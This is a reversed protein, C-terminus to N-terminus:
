CRMCRVNGKEGWRMLAQNLDSMGAAFSRNLAFSFLPALAGTFESTQVVKVQGAAGGELRLCYTWALLADSWMAGRWSFLAETELRLVRVAVHFPDIGPLRVSLDLRGGPEFAGTAKEVLLNWQPYLSLDAVLAWVRDVPAQLIVETKVQNM